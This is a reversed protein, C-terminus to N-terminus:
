PGAIEGVNVSAATQEASLPIVVVRQRDDHAVYLETAEGQRLGKIVFGEGVPFVNDRPPGNAVTVVYGETQPNQWVLSGTVQIAAEGVISLSYENSTALDLPYSFRFSHSDVTEDFKKWEAASGNQVLQTSQQSLMAHIKTTAAPFTGTLQVQGTANTKGAASPVSSVLVVPIGEVPTGAPAQVTVSVTVVRPPPDSQALTVCGCAIICVVVILSKFAYKV